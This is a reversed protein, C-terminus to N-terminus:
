NAALSSAALALAITSAPPATTSIKPVYANEGVGGVFACSSEQIVAPLRVTELKM